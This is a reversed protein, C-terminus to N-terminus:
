FNFIMNFFKYVYKLIIVLSFFILLSVIIGLDSHIQQLLETDTSEAVIEIPEVTEEEAFEEM